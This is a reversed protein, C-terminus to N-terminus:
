VSQQKKVPFHASAEAVLDAFSASSQMGVFQSKKRYLKVDREVIKECDAFAADSPTPLVVNADNKLSPNVVWKVSQM